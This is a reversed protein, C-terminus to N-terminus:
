AVRLLSEFDSDIKELDAHNAFKRFIIQKCVFRKFARKLRLFSLPSESHFASSKADHLFHDGNNLLTLMWLCFSVCSLSVFRLFALTCYCQYDTFGFHQKLDRITLEISFRSGYIEIIQAADLTLDTSVLLLPTTATQVVVVRVLDKFDGLYVDRVVVQLTEIKGYLWVDISELPFENILNALKWKKGKTRPRGRKRKKNKAPPQFCDYGTADKRLRSILHICKDRLGKIFPVKSFYADAVVRMKIFPPLYSQLEYVAALSADWFNMAQLGQTTYIWQQQNLNGSILRALIPFCIYRIPHRCVLGVIGWHHGFLSTLKDSTGTSNHWKQVGLMMKSAKAVLTTDFVALLAGHIILCPYFEKLLVEVLKQRVKCMDWKNESLFRAFSSLNKGLFFCAQATNTMCKSATNIMMSWVYAKFYVFNPKSFCQSFQLLISLLYAPFFADM